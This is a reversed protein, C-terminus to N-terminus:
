EGESGGNSEREHARTRLRDVWECRVMREEWVRKQILPNMETDPLGMIIERQFNM